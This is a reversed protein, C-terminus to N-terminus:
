KYFHTDSVAHLIFTYKAPITFAGSGLDEALVGKIKLLYSPVLLVKNGYSLGTFVTEIKDLEPKTMIKSYDISEVSACTENSCGIEYESIFGFLPDKQSQIKKFKESLLVVQLSQEREKKFISLECSYQSIVKNNVTITCLPTYGNGLIIMGREQQFISMVCSNSSTTAILSSVQESSLGLLTLLINPIIPTACNIEGLNSGKLNQYLISRGGRLKSMLLYKGKDEQRFESVGEAVVVKNASLGELEIFQKEDVVIYSGLVGPISSSVSKQTDIFRQLLTRLNTRAIYKDNSYYTETEALKFPKTGQTLYLIFLGVIIVVAIIIITSKKIKM